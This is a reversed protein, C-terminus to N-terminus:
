RVPTAMDTQIEAATLARRYIRLDDVRGGFLQALSGDAGVVLPGQRSPIAGPAAITAHLAGDIYGRVEAGDYTWAFHV